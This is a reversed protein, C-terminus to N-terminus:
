LGDDLRSWGSLEKQAKPLLEFYRGNNMQAADMAGMMVDLAVLEGLKPIIIVEEIDDRM